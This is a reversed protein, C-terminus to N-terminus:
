TQDHTSTSVHQFRFYYIQRRVLRNMVNARKMVRRLHKRRGRKKGTYREFARDFNAKAQLAKRQWRTWDM